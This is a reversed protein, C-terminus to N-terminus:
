GLYGRHETQITILPNNANRSLSHLPSSHPFFTLSPALPTGSLFLNSSLSLHFFPSPFRVQYLKVDYQSVMTLALGGRGARATRGVRHIYDEAVKPVDYNIQLSSFPYPTHSVCLFLYSCLSLLFLYSFSYLFSSLSFLFPFSLSLTSVVLKVTPIDLGRSAVDTAVLIQVRGSRFKGLAAMRRAQNKRANLSVNEIEM